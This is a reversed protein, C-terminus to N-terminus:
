FQQEEIKLNTWYTATIPPLLKSSPQKGGVEGSCLIIKCYEVLPPSNKQTKLVQIFLRLVKLKM